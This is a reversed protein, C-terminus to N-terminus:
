FYVSVGGAIYGFRDSRQLDHQYAFDVGAQESRWGVGGTLLNRDLFGRRQFGVRIPVMQAAMYELGVGFDVTPGGPSSTLDIAAQGSGLFGTEEGIAFGGGIRTPTTGRCAPDEPCRDILNQASLGLHLLEAARVILGADITFGSMLLQDDDEEVMPIGEDTIRLYRVGVGVSVREPVVPIAVAGRVDHGSQESNEGQGLFYTYGVAGAFNPNTQSDSIGATLLAGQPTYSFAGDVVYMTARAVGAPNLYLADTGSAVATHSGGAGASRLGEFFQPISEEQAEAESGIMLLGAGMMLAVMMATCSRM